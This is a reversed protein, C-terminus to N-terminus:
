RRLRGELRNALHSAVALLAAFELVIRIGLEVEYYDTM